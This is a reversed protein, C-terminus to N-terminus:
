AVRTGPSLTTYPVALRRIALALGGAGLLLNAGLGWPWVPSDDLVRDPEVYGAPYNETYCQDEVADADGTRAYRVGEKIATLPGYGWDDTSASGPSADALVVFPNIALLWWTRETHLVDQSQTIWECTANADAPVVLTQVEDRTTVAPISVLFVILSLVTLSVVAVYTLVSSGAPRTTLSSFGLGIACVVGLLLALVVMSLLWGLPDVRSIVAGWILFPLSVALFALAAAWGALLKGVAIEAPGLMTVQLIALTGANRDGNIATSSMTPSVVLGLGLVLMLILGYVWSSAGDGGSSVLGPLLLSVFGIVVFWAILAIKWRTSRVRQRLELLMVTRVGQWTFTRASPPAEAPPIPFTTSM